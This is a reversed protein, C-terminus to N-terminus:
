NVAASGAIREMEQDLRRITSTLEDASMEQLQKGSAKDRGTRDFLGAAELMTRSASVRASAPVTKDRMVEVLTTFAVNAGYASITRERESRIEEQVHPLRTLRYAEQKPESYGAARAAETPTCGTTVLHHVFETQRDTLKPM